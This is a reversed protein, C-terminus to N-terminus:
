RGRSPRIVKVYYGVVLLATSAVFSALLVISVWFHWPHTVGLVPHSSGSALTKLV